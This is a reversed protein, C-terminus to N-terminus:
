SPGILFLLWIMNKVRKYAPLHVNNSRADGAVAFQEPPTRQALLTKTLWLPM